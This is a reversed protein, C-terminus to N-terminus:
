KPKMTPQKANRGNVLNAVDSDEKSSLSDCRKLMAEARDRPLKMFDQFNIGTYKLVNAVLYRELYVDFPDVKGLDEPEHMAALAWPSAGQTSQAYIGFYEDYCERTIIEAQISDLTKDYTGM